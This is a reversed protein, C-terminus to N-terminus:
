PDEEEEGDEESFLDEIAQRPPLVARVFAGVAADSEQTLLRAKDEATPGPPGIFRNIQHTTLTANKKQLEFAAKRIEIGGDQRVMTMIEELPKEYVQLCWAELEDSRVGAYGLIEEPKCQLACLQEFNERTLERRLGKLPPAHPDIM